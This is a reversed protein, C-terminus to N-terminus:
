WSIAFMEAIPAHVSCRLLIVWGVQHKLSLSGLWLKM